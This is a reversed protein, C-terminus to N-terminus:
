IYIVLSAHFIGLMGTEENVLSAHFIGLMSTEENHCVSQM